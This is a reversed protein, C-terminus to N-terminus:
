TGPILRLIDKISLLSPEAEHARGHTLISEATRTMAPYASRLLQNAYIVVRMGRAHLEQESVQSYTSPVSVLPVGMGLAKVRELCEFLPSPDADKFHILLGDAGADVYRRARDVADEIGKGLILSEVRAIIMFDKTVQARKGAEIKQAFAAPEDQTQPVDTGYLSNRKLGKKDEIVVASVGLRELTRVRLVFHEILGGTDGDYIVPKTTADLIDQLTAMRSTLDVYETDPRAKATSDTLSSLWMADFERRGTDSDVGVTEAIRATLGNHAEIVRVVDKAELLRRLLRRRVNPTTGIEKVQANIMTSSIGETYTPEVLEGGWETLVEIVRQRTRVQPGSKWDDGHVVFDPRLARLNETYDLTAQPVVREVGKVQEVVARRQEFTLHPLRKYSAIAEDTLLGVTLEGLEAGIRIINLHGPHLLDASMAAYVKPKPQTM